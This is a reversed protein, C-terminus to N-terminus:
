DNRNQGKYILSIGNLFISAFVCVWLCKSVPPLVDMMASWDERLVYQGADAYFACCTLATLSMSIFRFWKSEKGRFFTVLNWIAMLIAGIGFALWMGM